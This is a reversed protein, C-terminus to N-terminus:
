RRTDTMNVIHWESREDARPKENISSITEIKMPL